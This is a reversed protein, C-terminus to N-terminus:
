FWRQVKEHYPLGADFERPSLIREARGFSIEVYSQDELLLFASRLHVNERAKERAFPLHKRIPHRSGVNSTHRSLHEFFHAYHLRKIHLV